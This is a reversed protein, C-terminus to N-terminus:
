NQNASMLVYSPCVETEDTDIISKCHAMRAKINAMERLASPRGECIGHVLGARTERPMYDGLRCLRNGDMVLSLPRRGVASSLQGNWFESTSYGHESNSVFHESDLAEALVISQKM